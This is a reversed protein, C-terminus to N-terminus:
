KYKLQIFYNKTYQGGIICSDQGQLKTWFLCFPNSNDANYDKALDIKQVLELRKYLNAFFYVSYPYTVLVSLFCVGRYSHLVMQHSRDLTAIRLKNLEVLNNASLLHLGVTSVAYVYNDNGTLAFITLGRDLKKIKAIKCTSSNAKVIENSQSYYIFRSSPYFDIPFYKPEITLM